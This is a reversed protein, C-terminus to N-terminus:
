VRTVGWAMLGYNVAFMLLAGPLAARWPITLLTRVRGLVTLAVLLVAGAALFRSSAFLLPPLATVGIKLALWGSGWMLCLLAFLGAAQVNGPAAADATHRPM